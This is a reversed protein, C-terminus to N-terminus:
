EPYVLSCCKEVDCIKRTNRGIPKREKKNHKSRVEFYSHSDLAYRMDQIISVTSIMTKVQTKQLDSAHPDTHSSCQPSGNSM